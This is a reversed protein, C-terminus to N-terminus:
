LSTTVANAQELVFHNLSQLYYVRDLGYVQLDFELCISQLLQDMSLVISFSRRRTTSGLEELLKRCITTKGAGVEGTLEIFRQAPSASFCITSREQHKASFFL